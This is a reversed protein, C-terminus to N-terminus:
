IGKNVNERTIFQRDYFRECYNLLLEINSAILRKSHKDVTQRLEKDIKSLCEMVTQKETISLHLAENSNYGFFSYENIRKALSTGKILDAHFVLAYGAPQYYDTKNEM